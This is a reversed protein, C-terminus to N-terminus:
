HDRKWGKGNPIKPAIPNTDVGYFRPDPDGEWGLGPAQRDQVAPGHMATTPTGLGQGPGRVVLVADHSKGTHDTITQEGESVICIQM